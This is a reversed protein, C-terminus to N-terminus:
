WRMSEESAAIRLEAEDTRRLSKIIERYLARAIAPPVANGIQKRVERRGFSHNLPFTQLCAFERNTFGRKGSPHHNNEGGGCTITRAQTRPDFPRKFGSRRGRELAGLVDHDPADNPIGSIMTEITTYPLLGPDDGEGHTPRPFRPLDEGPGSAIIFLRRRSQPVGYHSCDLVKWRVSYGIEVFDQIVASFTEQHREMLGSTEEMTHVRPKSREIIDRCSFICASNADDNPGEVTHAPSFTQCPPSGHSVDVKLESPQNTLFNTVDAIECIVDPFNRGYSEIAHHSKDFAWKIFLGADTAGRSVGGAGCFGDGFTYRRSDRTPYPSPLTLDIADPGDLDIATIHQASHCVKRAGGFPDTRGRWDRRLRAHPLSYGNDAEAASLYEIAVELTESSSKETITIEKLRCYLEGRQNICSRSSYRANTLHIVAFRKVRELPVDEPIRGEPTENVIWCLENRWKPYKPSMSELRTFRLGNLFVTGLSERFIHVIRLFTGDYLEVSQGPTFCLGQAWLFPIVEPEDGPQRSNAEPSPQSDPIFCRIVRSARSVRANTLYEDPKFPGDLGDTLDVVEAATQTGTVGTIECSPSRLSTHDLPRLIWQTDPDNAVTHSGDTLTSSDSVTSEERSIYAAPNYTHYRAIIDVDRDSDDEIVIPNERSM